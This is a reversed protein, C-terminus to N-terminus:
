LIPALVMISQVDALNYRSIIEQGARVTVVIGLFSLSMGVKVNLFTDSQSHKNGVKAYCITLDTAGSLCLVIIRYFLNESFEKCKNGILDDEEEKL